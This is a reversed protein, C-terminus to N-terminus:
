IFLPLIFSTGSFGMYYISPRIEYVYYPVILSSIEELNSFAFANVLVFQSYFYLCEM